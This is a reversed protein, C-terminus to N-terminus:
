QSQPVFFFDGAEHGAYSMPAYIPVQELKVAAPAIAVRQTVQQALKQGELIGGNSRLVTIFADAFVSHGRGGIDSVPKVGGSTLVVRAHKAAMTRYWRGEEEATMGTGLSTLASRTLMGSFCSDAVLMIQKAAMSKLIDTIQYSAIWNANSTLEADVPLWYGRDNAQDLEGHGAYYVLLNDRSTLRERLTNLASLIQYRNADLLVVTEFGYRTKLVDAVARADAVATRLKPGHLYNNNGIVLAVYHGFDVDTAARVPASPATAPSPMRTASAFQQELKAIRDNLQAVERRSAALDGERRRLDAELAVQGARGTDGNQRQQALQRQLREVEARQTEVALIRQRLQANSADLLGSVRALEARAQATEGHATSVDSQRQQESRALAQQLQGSRQELISVSQRMDALQADRQAISARQADLDRQLQAIRRESPGPDSAPVAAAAKQQRALAEERVALQRRAAGLEQEQVQLSSRNGQLQRNVDQLERELQQRRRREEALQRALDDRERVLATNSGGTNFQLDALGSAKRYWVLAQAPDRSVGIGREYLSGLNVQARASGQQAAMRYWQLALDPQPPGGIGREFIEGLNTQAEADGAKALPLWVRMLSAYTAERAETYEGGRVRCDAASTKIARRAALYTVSNGLRRTQGPLLCDVILLNDANQAIAPTAYLDFAVVSAVLLPAISFGVVRLKRRHNSRVSIM